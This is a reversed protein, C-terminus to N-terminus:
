LTWKVKYAKFGCRNKFLKLGDSAGFFTDYMIYRTRGKLKFEHEIYSLIMFYMIGDKLYDHHGLLRNLIALEGSKVVWLYALLVDGMFVGFYLNSDNVLYDNMNQYSSEMKKGQRTEVSNNIQLVEKIYYNIDIPKLVYGLRIAKRSFYAASNKGNVTKLFDASDIFDNLNILAVGNTKQKFIIYRPHIKNFSSYLHTGTLSNDLRITLKPLNVIEYIVKFLKKIGM